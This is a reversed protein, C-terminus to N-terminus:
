GYTMTLVLDYIMDRPLSGNRRVSRGEETCQSTIRDKSRGRLM